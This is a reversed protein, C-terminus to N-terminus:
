KEMFFHIKDINYNILAEDHEKRWNNENRVLEWFDAQEEIQKKGFSKMYLYHGGNKSPLITIFMKYRSQAKYREGDTLDDIYLSLKCFIDFMKLGFLEGNISRRLQEIEENKAEIPLACM